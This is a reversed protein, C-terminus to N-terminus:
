WTQPLASTAAAIEDIRRRTSATTSQPLSDLPFFGAEAIEWDPEKHAVLEFERVVFVLVHDRRAVKRNFFVGHLHPVGTMAIRAEEHLERALAMRATEGAEVGGGPLHWGHTYTHRVLFIRNDPAIVAGRVGLTLGRRLRWYRQLLPRVLAYSRAMLLSNRM